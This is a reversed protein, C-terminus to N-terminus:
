KSTLSAALETVDGAGMTLIVDGERVETKLYEKIEDFSDLGVAGSIMDALTKPTYGYVNKERAAYIPAIITLDAKSLVAAFDQM